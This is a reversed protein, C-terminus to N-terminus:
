RAPGQAMADMTDFATRLKQELVGLAFPKIVYGTVGAQIAEIINDKETESTLMLVPIHKLHPHQRVGRLLEIGDRNPMHWDTILFDYKNKTLLQWGVVGDEAMDINNYGMNRLLGRIMKRTIPCDEAVLIKRNYDPM